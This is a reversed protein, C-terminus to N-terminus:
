EVELLLQTNHMRLSHWRFLIIHDHPHLHPHFLHVLRICRARPQHAVTLLSQAFQIRKIRGRRLGLGGTEQPLWDHSGAAHSASRWSREPSMSDLGPGFGVSFVRKCM